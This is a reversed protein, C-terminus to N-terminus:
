GAQAHIHIELRPAPRLAEGPTFAEYFSAIGHTNLNDMVLVIMEVHKYPGDLLGKIFEAWDVRTRRGTVTAWRKGAMPGVAMFIDAV